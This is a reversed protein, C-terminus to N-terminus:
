VSWLGRLYALGRAVDEAPTGPAPEMVLPADGAVFPAFIRFDVLGGPPMVHDALPPAVDADTAHFSTFPRYRRVADCCMVNPSAAPRQLRPSIATRTGAPAAAICIARPTLRAGPSFAQNSEM